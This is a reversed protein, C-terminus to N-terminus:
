RKEKWFERGHSLQPVRWLSTSFHSAASPHLYQHRRPHLSISSAKRRYANPYCRSLPALPRKSAPSILDLSSLPHPLLLPAQFHLLVLAIPISQHHPPPFSLFFIMSTHHAKGALSSFKVSM